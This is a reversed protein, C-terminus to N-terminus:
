ISLESSFRKKSAKPSLQAYNNLAFLHMPFPPNNALVGAPDTYVHLGDPTQEIAICGSRDALMWHLQVLPMGEYFPTDAM